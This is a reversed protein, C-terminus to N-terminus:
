KYTLQGRVCETGRKWRTGQPCVLAIPSPLDGLVGINETVESVRV